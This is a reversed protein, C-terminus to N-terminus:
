KLSIKQSYVTQGKSYVQAIYFGSTLGECDFINSGFSLFGARVVEGNLGYLRISFSEHKESNIRLKGDEVLTNIIHVQGNEISNLSSVGLTVEFKLLFLGSEMDSVLLRGSPLFCYVGWAGRYDALDMGAYTDFYGVRNPLIPNSIDFIQLGAEYYSVYLLDDKIMLNHVILNQYSPIDIISIVQLNNLDSVNCIKIRTGETEDAFAYILGDESLWGSHNYGKDSYFSLQHGQAVGGGISDNYDVWYLGSNEGNAFVTDNRAYFDHAHQLGPVVWSWQNQVSDPEIIKFRATFSNDTYGSYLNGNATDIFINHSSTIGGRLTDVNISDPLNQINIVQTGGAGEACVAYLFGQYDHYDRHVVGTGAYLGPVFFLEELSDTISIKFIHTGDTSGMVAYEEGNQEFGWVENYRVEYSSPFANSLSLSSDQWSDLLEVNQSDYQTFGFVCSLLSLSLIITKL